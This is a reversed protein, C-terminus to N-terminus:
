KLYFPESRIKGFVYSFYKMKTKHLLRRVKLEQRTNSFCDHFLAFNEWPHSGVWRWQSISYPEICLPPGFIGILKGLM